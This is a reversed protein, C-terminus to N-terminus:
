QIIDAICFQKVNGASDIAVATEYLLGRNVIIDIDGYFGASVRINQIRARSSATQPSTINISFVSNDFVVNRLYYNESDPRKGGVNIQGCNDGIRTHEAQWLFIDRCKAGIRISNGSVWVLQSSHGIKINPGAAVVHDCNPAIVTNYILADNGHREIAVANLRFKRDFYPYIKNDFYRGSSSENNVGGIAYLYDGNASENLISINKFDYPCDNNYEDIMRYIVGTGKSSSAWAFRTKDNDLSYWIQWSELHSNQFYTDGEHHCAWARESLTDNTLALVIIDFQREASQTDSQSTTTIYDTIRYLSGPSLAKSDRLEVLKSYTISILRNADDLIEQVEEGTQTLKTAM